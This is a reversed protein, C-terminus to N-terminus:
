PYPWSISPLALINTLDPLGPQNSWLFSQVSQVHAWDSTEICAIVRQKWTDWFFLQEDSLVSVTSWHQDCHFCILCQNCRHSCAHIQQLRNLFNTWCMHHESNVFKTWLTVLNSFTNVLHCLEHDHSCAWLSFKPRFLIILQRFEPTQTKIILM